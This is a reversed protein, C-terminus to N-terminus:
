KILWILLINFYRMKAHKRIMLLGDKASIGTIVPIKPFEGRELAEWPSRGIYQLDKPLFNDIVPGFVDTGNYRDVVRYYAQTIRNVDLYRLCDLIVDTSSTSCGVEKALQLSADRVKYGLAWPSLSSGSMLILRHFRGAKTM